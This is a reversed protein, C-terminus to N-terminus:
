DRILDDRLVRRLDDVLEDATAEQNLISLLRRRLDVMAFPRSVRFPYTGEAHEPLDSTEDGEIRIMITDRQFDATVGTIHEGPGLKLLRWLDEANLEVVGLRRPEGTM